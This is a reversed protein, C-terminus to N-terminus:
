CYCRKSCIVQHTIFDAIRETISGDPAGPFIRNLNLGDEPNINPTRAYLARPNAMPIIILTGSISDKDIEQILEQSAMIPPSEYGHVGAIM